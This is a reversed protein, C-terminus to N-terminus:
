IADNLESNAKEPANIKEKPQQTGVQASMSAHRNLYDELGGSPLGLMKETRDVLDRYILETQNM